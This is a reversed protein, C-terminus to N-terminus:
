LMGLGSFSPAVMVNAELYLLFGWINEFMQKISM